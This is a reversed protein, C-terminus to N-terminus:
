ERLQIDSFSLYYSPFLQEDYNQWLHDSDLIQFRGGITSPVKNQVEDGSCICIMRSSNPLVDAYNFVLGNMMNGDLSIEPYQIRVTIDAKNSVSIIVSGKCQYNCDNRAGMSVGVFEIKVNDDEYLDVGDYKKQNIVDSQQSKETEEAKESSDLSAKIDTRNLEAEYDAAIELLIEYKEKYDDREAVVSEYEVKSIDSNNVCGCLLISTLLLYITKKM